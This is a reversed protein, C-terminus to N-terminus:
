EPSWLKIEVQNNKLSKQHRYERIANRSIQASAAIRIRVTRVEPRPQRSADEMYYAKVNVFYARRLSVDFLVLIVPNQETMWLNYDRIDIDFAVFGNSEKLQETAKVQFFVRGPEVFGEEDFTTMMLDYGYDRRFEEFTHGEELIFGQVYHVALDAIVHQRTRRKHPGLFKM